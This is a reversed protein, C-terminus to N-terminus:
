SLGYAFINTQTQLHDFLSLSVQSSVSSRGVEIYPCSDHLLLLRSLILSYYFLGDNLFDVCLGVFPDFLAQMGCCIALGGGEYSELHDCVEAAHSCRRESEEVLAYAALRELCGCFKWSDHRLVCRGVGVVDSEWEM